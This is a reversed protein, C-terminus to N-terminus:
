IQDNLARVEPTGCAMGSSFQNSPYREVKSKETRFDWPLQIGARVKVAAPWNSHPKM